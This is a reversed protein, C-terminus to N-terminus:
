LKELMFIAIAEEQLLKILNAQYRERQRHFAFPTFEVEQDFTCLLCNQTFVMKNALETQRATM